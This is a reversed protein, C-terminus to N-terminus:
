EKGAKEVFSELGSEDMVGPYSKSIEGKKNIVYVTPISRIIYSNWLEGSTDYLVPHTISKEKLYADMEEPEVENSHTPSTCSLIVVDKKDEYKKYIDEIYPLETRCASCWTAWFSILVVKGKYKSLTHTKGYQDKVTFDAAKARQKEEGASNNGSKDESGCGSLVSVTLLAILLSLFIKKKM